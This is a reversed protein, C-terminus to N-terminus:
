TFVDPRPPYFRGGTGCRHRGHEQGGVLVEGEKLIACFDPMVTDRYTVTCLYLAHGEVRRSTRDCAVAILPESPNVRLPIARTAVSRLGREIRSKESERSLSCGAVAIVVLLVGARQRGSGATALGM